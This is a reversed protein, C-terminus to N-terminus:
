RQLMYIKYPIIIQEKHFTNITVEGPPVASVCRQVTNQFFSYLSRETEDGFGASTKSPELSRSVYRNFLFKSYKISIIIISAFDTCRADQLAPRACQRRATAKFSHNIYVYIPVHEHGPV